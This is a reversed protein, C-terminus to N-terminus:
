CGHRGRREKGGRFLVFTERKKNECVISFDRERERERAPLKRRKEERRQGGGREGRTSSTNLRKRLM